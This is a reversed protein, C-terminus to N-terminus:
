LLNDSFEIVASLWPFSPCCKVNGFQFSLGYTLERGPHFFLGLNHVNIPTSIYYRSCDRMGEIFENEVSQLIDEISNYYRYFTARSINAKQVVDKVSIKDVDSSRMFEILIQKLVRETNQNKPM